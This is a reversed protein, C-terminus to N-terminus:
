PVFNYETVMEALSKDLINVDMKIDVIPRNNADKTQKVITAAV